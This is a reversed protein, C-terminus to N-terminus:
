TGRSLYRPIGREMWAGAQALVIALGWLWGGICTWSGMWMLVPVSFLGLSGAILLAIRWDPQADRRRFDAWPASILFFAALIVAVGLPLGRALVAASYFVVQYGHLGSLPGDDYAGAGTVKLALVPLFLLAGTLKLTLAATRDPLM